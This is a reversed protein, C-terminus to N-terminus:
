RNAGLPGERRDIWWVYLGALVGGTSVILMLVLLLWAGNQATLLAAPLATLLAGAAMVVAGSLGSASGALHPRVSMTGARASPNSLGNGLGASVAGGFFVVANFAGLVYLLLAVALGAFAVFRGALMMRVLGMRASIRGSILSGVFFGITITGIGFGLMAPSMGFVKTAVLPAGAIFIYFTGIGFGMVLAYGWFRRSRFLEPYSKLQGALTDAGGPNTEGLDSWVLWLLALGAGTYVWFNSRWGFAADLLGGLMPGLMPAVAMAMAVYSLRSAAESPKTTDRIVASALASGSVIAGQLVRFILFVTVNQALACVLSAVVFIAVSILLVPRRGYRDALPGLIIQLVATVALYGSVSLGILAYDTGLDEAIHALSPLFMNLSLVSVGTLLILTLLRPPSTAAAFM